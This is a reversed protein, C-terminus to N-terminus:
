NPVRVNKEKRGRLIVVLSLNRKYSNRHGSASAFLTRSYIPKTLYFDRPFQIVLRTTKLCNRYYLYLMKDDKNKM